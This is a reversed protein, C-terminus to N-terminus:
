NVALLQRLVHAYEEPQAAGSDRYLLTKRGREDGGGYVSVVPISHIGQEVAEDLEAEVEARFMSPDKLVRAAEQQDLGVVGVAQLLNTHDCVCRKQEFHYHSLLEALEEQKNDDFQRSWRLLRLSDMSNGVKGGFDFHIGLPQGKLKMQPVFTDVWSPNGRSEGLKRLVTLWDHLGVREPRLIFAKRTYKVELLVSPELERQVAEVAQKLAM